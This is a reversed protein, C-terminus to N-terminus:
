ASLYDRIFMEFDNSSDGGERLGAWMKDKLALVNKRKLKGDEGFANEFIMQIEEKLADLTGTPQVGRYMPKLGLETRGEVIEYAINLTLSIHAANGSQEGAIPWAM